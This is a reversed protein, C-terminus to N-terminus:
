AKSRLPKWCLSEEAEWAEALSPSQGSTAEARVWCVAGSGFTGRNNRTDPQGPFWNVCGNGLLPRRRQNKLELKSGGVPTCLIM